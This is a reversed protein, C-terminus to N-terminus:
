PVVEVVFTPERYEDFYYANDEDLNELQFYTIGPGTGMEYTIGRLESFNCCSVPVEGGAYISIAGSDLQKRAKDDAPVFAITTGPDVTVYQQEAPYVRNDYGMIFPIQVADAPFCESLPINTQQFRGDKLCFTKKGYSFAGSLIICDGQKEAEINYECETYKMVVDDESLVLVIPNYVGGISGGDVEVNIVVLAKNQNTIYLFDSIRDSFEHPDTFPEIRHGTGIWLAEPIEWAIDWVNEKVQCVAIAMESEYGDVKGLFVVAYDSNGVMLPEARLLTWGTYLREADSNSFQLSQKRQKVAMDPKDEVKKEVTPATKGYYSMAFFALGCIILLAPLIWILMRWRPKKAKNYPVSDPSLTEESEDPSAWDVSSLSAGCYPCFKIGKRHLERNCEPCINM